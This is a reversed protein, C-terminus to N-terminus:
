KGGGACLGFDASQLLLALPVSLCTQFALICSNGSISVRTVGATAQYGSILLKPCGQYLGVGVLVHALTASVVKLKTVVFGSGWVGM